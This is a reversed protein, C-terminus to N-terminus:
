TFESSPTFQGSLTKRVRKVQPLAHRAIRRFGM